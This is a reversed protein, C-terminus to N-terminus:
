LSVFFSRQEETAVCPVLCSSLVVDLSYISSNEETNRDLILILQLVFHRVLLSIGKINFDVSVVLPLAYM